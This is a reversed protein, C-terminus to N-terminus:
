LQREYMMRERNGKKKEKTIREVSVERNEVV